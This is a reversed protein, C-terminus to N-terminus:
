DMLKRGAPRRLLFRTLVEFTFTEQLVSQWKGIPSNAIALVSRLTHWAIYRIVYLIGSVHSIGIDTHRCILYGKL